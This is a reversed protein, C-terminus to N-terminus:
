PLFLLYLPLFPLTLTKFRKWSSDLDCNGVPDGTKSGISTSNVSAIGFYLFVALSYQLNKTEISKLCYYPFKLDIHIQFM